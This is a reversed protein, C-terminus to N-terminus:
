GEVASPQSDVTWSVQRAWDRFRTPQIWFERANAVIDANYGVADFWQYMAAVDASSARVTEEVRFKNEFHPIGTKRHASAVSSYVYHQVGGERALEDFRKGQEEELEVGAEWTNQVAFAGWVGRPANSLSNAEDLDGRVFKRV